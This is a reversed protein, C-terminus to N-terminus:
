SSIIWKEAIRLRDHRASLQIEGEHAGDEQKFHVQLVDKAMCSFSLAALLAPLSAFNITVTLDGFSPLGVNHGTDMAREIHRTIDCIMLLPHAYAVIRSVFAKRDFSSLPPVCAWRETLKACM